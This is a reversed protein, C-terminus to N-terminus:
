NYLIKQSERIDYVNYLIKQSGRPARTTKSRHHYFHHLVNELLSFKIKLGGTKKNKSKRYKRWARSNHISSEM